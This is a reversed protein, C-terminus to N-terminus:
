FVRFGLIMFIVIFNFLLFLRLIFFKSFVQLLSVLLFPILFLYYKANSYTPLLFVFFLIVNLVSLTQIQLGIFIKDNESIQFGYNSYLSLKRYSSYRKLAVFFVVISIFYIPTIKLGVASMHLASMFTIIPRFLVPYKNVLDLNDSFANFIQHGKEAVLSPLPLYDIIVFGFYLVVSLQLVIFSILFSIGFRRGIYNNFFMSVVSAFVVIGNGVDLTFILYLLGILLFINNIVLILMLSLIVVFQEEGMIGVAGIVGPILITLSLADLKIAWEGATTNRLNSNFFRVSIKRLTVAFFIPIMLILTLAFRSLIQYLDEGCNDPIAAWLSLPHNDIQCINERTWTALWGHFFSYPSWWVHEDSLVGLSRIEFDPEDGFPSIFRTILSILVFFVFCIFGFKSYNPTNILKSIRTIM